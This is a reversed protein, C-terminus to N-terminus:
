FNYKKRVSKIIALLKQEAILEREIKEQTKPEQSNKDLIEKIRPILINLDQENEILSKQLTHPFQTYLFGSAHTCTHFDEFTAKSNRCEELLAAVMEPVNSDVAKLKELSVNMEENYKASVTLGTLILSILILNTKQM